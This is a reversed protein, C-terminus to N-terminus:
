VEVDRSNQGWCASGAQCAVLEPRDHLRAGVARDHQRGPVGTVHEDAVRENDMCGMRVSTSAGPEHSLRAYGGPFGEGKIAAGCVDRRDLAGDDTSKAIERKSLGLRCQQM